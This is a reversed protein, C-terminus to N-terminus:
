FSFNGVLYGVGFPKEYSYNKFSYDMNTLIGLLILTSRYACEQANTVLTSDMQAIGITDRRELLDILSSDFTEADVHFGAPADETHCHSLDGSAIVAVRKDTEMIVEKLIEGFALHQMPTMNSFGIPLVKVDPIHETLFHLPISTGHDLETESILRVPINHEVNTKHQIKAALDPSGKWTTGAAVHGFSEYSAQFSTHANVCFANDFRGTHPSIVIIIQPKAIYIDQELEVFANHTQELTATKDKGIEPLLMPPHPTIGAFVLSM